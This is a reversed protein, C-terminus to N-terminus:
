QSNKVCRVPYGRSRYHNARFVQGTSSDFYRYLANIETTASAEWYATWSGRLLFNNGAHERHGTPRMEFGLSDTSPITVSTFVWAGDGPDRGVYTSASRLKVGARDGFYGIGAQTAYGLPEIADFLAAWEYDTPMHFGSPCIGRGGDQAHNVNANPESPTLTSSVYKGSIDNEDWTGVGDKSMATEWTYLAGYVSCTNQSVTVSGATGALQPCWFSGIAPAGSGAATFLEGKAEEAKANFKLDKQYNLNEAMWVKTDPMKVVKYMRNDRSDKFTGKTGVPDGSKIDGCTLVEVTFANSAVADPCDPKKAYRIYTYKGVTLNTPLELYALTAGEIDEGDKKWQFTANADSPAAVQVIQYPTATASTCWKGQAYGMVSVGALVAVLLFRIKNKQKM